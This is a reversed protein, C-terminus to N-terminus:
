EADEYDYIWIPTQDGMWAGAVNFEFYDVAEEETLGDAMLIEICKSVSYALIEEQGCRYGRGLIAAEFGDAKLM